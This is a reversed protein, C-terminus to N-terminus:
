QGIFAPKQKKLFADVGIKRDETQMLRSCDIAGIIYKADYKQDPEALEDVIHGFGPFHEDVLTKIYSLAMEFDHKGYVVNKVAEVARPGLLPNDKLKTELDAIAVPVYEGVTAVAPIDKEDAVALDLATNLADKQPVVINVIGMKRATEADITEGTSCLYAANDKGAKYEIRAIGAWGPILALTVEPLSITVDNAAVVYQAWLPWEVSGGYRGAGDMVGITRPKLKKVINAAFAGELTHRLAWEPDIEGAFEKINAGVHAKAPMSYFIVFDKYEGCKDRLIKTGEYIQAMADAGIPNSPPDAIRFLAGKKGHHEKPQITVYRGLTLITNSTM